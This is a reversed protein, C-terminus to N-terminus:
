SRFNRFCKGFLIRIALMTFWWNLLNNFKGRRKQSRLFSNAFDVLETRRVAGGMQLPPLASCCITFLVVVVVSTIKESYFSLLSPVSIAVSSLFLAELLANCWTILMGNHSRGITLRENVSDWSVCPILHISALRKFFCKLLVVSEKRLM